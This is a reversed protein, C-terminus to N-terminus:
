EELSALYYVPINNNYNNYFKFIGIYGLRNNYKFSRENTHLNHILKIPKNKLTQSINKFGLSCGFARLEIKM